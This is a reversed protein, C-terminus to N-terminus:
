KSAVNSDLVNVKEVAKTINNESATVFDLPVVYVFPSTM